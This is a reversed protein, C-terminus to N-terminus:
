KIVLLLVPFYLRMRLLGCTLIAGQVMRPFIVPGSNGAVARMRGGSSNTRTRRIILAFYQSARTGNRHRLVSLEMSIAGAHILDRQQKAARGRDDSEETAERRSGGHGRHNHSKAPLADYKRQRSSGTVMLTRELNRCIRRLCDFNREPPMTATFIPMFPNPRMPRLTRRVASASLFRSKTATLSRVSGLVRAWRSFYSEIRPLRGCLIVAPASLMEISPLTMLTKLSFSGAARGQSETPACTTMSDVPRNVSAASARFCRRPETFFTMMEAGAFFSSRVTTSPTLSSFYSGALCWMMEFAEQVVFQRAGIALTTFSLKLIRLPVMVVM